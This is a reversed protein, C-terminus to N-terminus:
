DVRRDFLMKQYDFVKGEEQLNVNLLYAVVVVIVGLLLKDVVLLLVKTGIGDSPRDNTMPSKELSLV